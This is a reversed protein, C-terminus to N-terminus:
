ICIVQKAGYRNFEFQWFQNDFTSQEMHDLNEFTCMEGWFKIESKWLCTDFADWRWWWSWWSWWPWRWSWASKWKLCQLAIDEASYSSGVLLLRKGAFETADRINITIIINITTTTTTTITITKTNTNTNTNTNTINITITVQLWSCSSGQWPIKWSWPINARQSSLLPRLCCRCLWVQHNM